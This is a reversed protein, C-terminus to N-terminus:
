PKSSLRDSEYGLAATFPQAFLRAIGEAETLWRHSVQNRDAGTQQPSRAIHDPYSQIAKAIELMRREQDRTIRSESNGLGPADWTQTRPDIFSQVRAWLIAETGTMGRKHAEALWEVYGASDLVAKPAQNALDIGNLKEELSLVLGQAAAKRLITEAQSRLRALQKTDAEEPTAAGHQYSFSGLNWVGNGPDTHGYYAPNKGGHPTRTGEASGVAIAVLSDAEGAFLADLSVDKSGAADPSRAADPPPPAISEAETEPEPLKLERASPDTPAAPPTSFDPSEVKAPPPTFDLGIVPKAPEPEFLAEDPLDEPFAFPSSESPLPPPAPPLVPQPRHSAPLDSSPSQFPPLEFLPLAPLSPDAESASPRDFVESPPQNLRDVGFPTLDKEPSNAQETYARAPAADLASIPPTPSKDLPVVIPSAPGAEFVLADKAHATSGFVLPMLGLLLVPSYKM